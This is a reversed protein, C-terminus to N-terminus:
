ASMPPTAMFVHMGNSSSANKACAPLSPLLVCPFSHVILRVFLFGHSEAAIAATSAMDSAQKPSVPHLEAPSLGASLVGVSAAWDSPLAGSDSGMVRVTVSMAPRVTSIGASISLMAVNPETPTMLANTSHM